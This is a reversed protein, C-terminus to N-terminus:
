NIPTETNMLRGRGTKKIIQGDRSNAVVGVFFSIIYNLVDDDNSTRLTSGGM